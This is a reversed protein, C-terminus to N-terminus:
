GDNVEVFRIVMDTGNKGGGSISCWTVKGDGDYETSDIAVVDGCRIWPVPLIEAVWTDGDRQMSLIQDDTLTYIDEQEPVMGWWIVGDRCVVPVQLGYAHNIEQLVSLAQMERVAVIHARGLYDGTMRYDTVGAVAFVYAVAEQPTCDVFTAQLSTGELRDLGNRIIIIDTMSEPRSGRGSLIVAYDGAEEQGFELTCESLDAKAMVPVLADDLVIRAWAPRGDDTEAFKVAIGETVQYDGATLRFGLGDIRQEM